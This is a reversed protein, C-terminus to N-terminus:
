CPSVRTGYSTSSRSSGRACRSTSCRSPSTPSSCSPTSYSARRSRSASGSDERSSTRIATSTSSRRPRPGGARARAVVERREEKSGIRPHLPEWPRAGRPLAPRAVRVSGPLRDADPPPPGSIGAASGTIDVRRLPDLRREDRDPASGVARDDDERLGVRRRARADRRTRAFSVGDVAHVELKPGRKVAGVLGRAVPYRAVLDEVELLPSGNTSM